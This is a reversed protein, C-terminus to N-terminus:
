KLSVKLTKKEEILDIKDERALWGLAYDVLAPKAKLKKSIQVTSQPGDTNLLRWIQGAMVGIEDNIAM